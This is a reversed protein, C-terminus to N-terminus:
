KKKTTNNNTWVDLKRNIEILKEIEEETLPNLHPEAWHYASQMWQPSYGLKRAITNFSEDEFKHRYYVELSTTKKLFNKNM